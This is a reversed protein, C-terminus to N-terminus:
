LFLIFDPHKVQDRHFLAMAVIGKHIEPVVIVNLPKGGVDHLVGGWLVAFGGIVEPLVHCSHKQFGKDGVKM